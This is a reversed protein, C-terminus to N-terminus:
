SHGWFCLQLDDLQWFIFAQVWLSCAAIRPPPIVSSEGM